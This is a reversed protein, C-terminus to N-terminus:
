LFIEPLSCSGKNVSVLFFCRKGHNYVSITSGSAKVMPIYMTFDPGSIFGNRVVSLVMCDMWLVDTCHLTKYFIIFVMRAWCPLYLRRCPVIEIFFSFYLVYFSPYQLVIFGHYARKLCISYLCYFLYPVYFVPVGLCLSSNNAFSICSWQAHWPTM